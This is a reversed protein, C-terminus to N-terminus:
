PLFPELASLLDTVEDENEGCAGRLLDVFIEEFARKARFRLTRMNEPTVGLEERLEPSQKGDHDLLDQMIRALRPSGRRLIQMTRDISARIFARNMAADPSEPEPATREAAIRETKSRQQVVGRIEGVLFRRLQTALYARFSRIPQGRENLWGRELSRAIYRDVIEEPELDRELRTRMSKLRTYVYEEMAPRYVEHFFEWSEQWQEVATVEPMPLFTRRTRISLLGRPDALVLAKRVLDAGALRQRMEGASMREASSTDVVERVLAAVEDFDPHGLPLMKELIEAVSRVDGAPLAEVASAAAPPIVTVGRLRRVSSASLGGHALGDAHMLELLRLCDDVVQALVQGLRPAERYDLLSMGGRWEAITWFGSEDIGSAITHELAPDVVERERLQRARDLVQRCDGVVEESWRQLHVLRECSPLARVRALQGELPTSWGPHSLAPDLLELDTPALNRLARIRQSCRLCDLVHPTAERVQPSGVDFLFHELVDEDICDPGPAGRDPLPPLADLPDPMEKM